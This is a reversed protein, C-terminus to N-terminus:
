GNSSYPNTPRVDIVYGYRDAFWQFHRQNALPVDRRQEIEARSSGGAMRDPAPRLSARFPRVAAVVGVVVVRWDCLGPPVASRAGFGPLGNVVEVGGCEALLSILRGRLMARGGCWARVAATIVVQRGAMLGLAVAVGAWM